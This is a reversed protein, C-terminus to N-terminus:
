LYLCLLLMLLILGNPFIKKLNKRIRYLQTSIVKESTHREKAIDAASKQELYYLSVLEQERPKLAALLHDVQQRAAENQLMLEIDDQQAAPVPQSDDQLPSSARQISRTKKMKTNLRNDLAIHLWGGINPHSSLTNYSSYATEFVEQVADEVVYLFQRDYGIFYFGQRMLEQFYKLFLAEIFVERKNCNETNGM